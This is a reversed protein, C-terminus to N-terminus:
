NNDEIIKDINKFVQWELFAMLRSSSIKRKKDLKKSLPYVAKSEFLFNGTQLEFIIENEKIEAKVIEVFGNLVPLLIGELEDFKLYEGIPTSANSIERQLQLMEEDTLFTGDTKKIRRM